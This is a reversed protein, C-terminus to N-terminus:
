FEVTAQLGFTRAEGAIALDTGNYNIAQVRYDQDAVNDIFGEVRWGEGILGARLNLLGYGEQELTNTIDFYYSSRYTYDARVMLDLGSDTPIVEDLPGLYQASLGYTFRPANPQRLGDGSALTASPNPFDVFTAENWGFTAGLTLTQTLRGQAELEAGYSRSHPVNVIDNFVGQWATVQQQHWDTYFLSGAVDLRRDFLRAKSGLEYNWVREPRLELRTTPAFQRNFGGSKYGRSITGYLRANDDPKWSVTLKPSFNLDSFSADLTQSPAWGMRSVHTYHTSKSDHTLRGGVMVDVQDLVGYTLDAFVAQSNTTTESNSEEREGNAFAGYLAATGPRHGFFNRENEKNHFLFVGGTWRLRSDDSSTLRFEQSGQTQDWESGQVVSNGNIEWDNGSLDSHTTRWATISHLTLDGLFLKGNVSMGYNQLNYDFPTTISVERDYPNDFAGYAFTTAEQDLYDARLVLDYDPSQARVQARGGTNAYDGLDDGILNDVTADRGSRFANFRTSVTTDGYEGIAGNAIGSLEYMNDSGYLASGSAFTEEEPKATIVNVAGGMANRGYLTGQPGRLVEIREVDQLLQNMGIQAGVYVDDAYVGIAQDGGAMGGGQNGIGRMTVTAFGVQGNDLRLMVNPTTNLTDNLDKQGRDEVEYGDIVDMSIPVDLPDERRHQATVEVPALIM